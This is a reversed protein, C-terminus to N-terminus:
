SAPPAAGSGGDVEAQRGLIWEWCEAIRAELEDLSGSNDIVFDARALREDRSAQNAIRARADGEDFGRSAVLRAVATEPDVDVVIIGGFDDRGSEVLLPIDLIVIEDTRALEGLREAIALGVAPHVIGELRKKAEADTFVIAALAARDLEGDAAVVQSGFAEVIAAFVPQGAEQLERTIRDADVLVAGRDVLRAAVTSKGSGIGGTLGVALVRISAIPAGDRSL